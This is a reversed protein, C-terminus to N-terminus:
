KLSSFQNLFKETVDLLEKIDSEQEQSFPTSRFLRKLMIFLESLFGSPYIRDRLRFVQKRFNQCTSIIHLRYGELSEEQLQLQEAHHQVKIIEDNLKTTEERIETAKAYSGKAAFYIIPAAIIGGLVMMGGAMGSGGAALAGGGFWAMTANTAAVGSLSAIATGTSASGIVSVVAWAGAAMSGGVIGGFGAIVANNYSANFNNLKSLTDTKIHAQQHCYIDQNLMKRSFNIPEEISAIAEGIAQLAQDIRTKIEAALDYHHKYISYTKNYAEQAELLEESGGLTVICNLARFSSKIFGM